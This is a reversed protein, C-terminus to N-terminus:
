AAWGDFWDSHPLCDRVRGRMQKEKEKRQREEWSVVVGPDPGLGPSGLALPGYGQCGAGGRNGNKEGGVREERGREIGKEWAHGSTLLRGVTNASGGERGGSRIGM